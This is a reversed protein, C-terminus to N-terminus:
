WNPNKREAKKVLHRANDKSYIGLFLPHKFLEQYDNKNIDCDIPKQDCIFFGKVYKSFALSRSGKRKWYGIVGQDSCVNKEFHKLGSMDNNDYFSDIIDYYEEKIQDMTQNMRDSIVFEETEKKFDFASRITSNWAFPKVEFDQKIKENDLLFVVDGWAMAYHKNRTTSIGKLFFSNEYEIREDDFFTQGNKWYRQTTRAELANKDFVHQINKFQVGHWLGKYKFFDKSSLTKM